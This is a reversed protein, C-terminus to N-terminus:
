TIHNCFGMEKHWMGEFLCVFFPIDIFWVRFSGILGFLLFDFVALIKFGEM